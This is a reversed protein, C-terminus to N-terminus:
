ERGRSWREGVGEEGGSRGEGAMRQRTKRSVTPIPKGQTASSSGGGGWVFFYIGEETHSKM